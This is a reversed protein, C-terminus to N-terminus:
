VIFYMKFCQMNIRRFFELSLAIGIWLNSDAIRLIKRGEKLLLFPNVSPRDRSYMLFKLIVMLHCNVFYHRIFTKM